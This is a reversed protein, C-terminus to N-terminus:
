FTFFQWLAKRNSYSISTHVYKDFIILCPIKQYWIASGYRGWEQLVLISIEVCQRSRCCFQFLLGNFNSEHFLPPDCEHYINWFWLFYVVWSLHSLSFYNLKKLFQSQLTPIFHFINSKSTHTVVYKSSFRQTGQFSICYRNITIWYMCQTDCFVLLKEVNRSKNYTSKM